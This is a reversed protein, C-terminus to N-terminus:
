QENQIGASVRGGIPIALRSYGGLARVARPAAGLAQITTKGGIAPSTLAAGAIGMIPSTIGTAGIIGGRLINMVGQGSGSGGGRGPALQQYADRVVATRLKDKFKFGKPALEDIEFFLEQTFTDKNYLNKVNRAVNEDKLKTKLRDRLTRIKSFKENVQAYSPISDSILKNIDNATEKLIGEGESSITRVTQQDFAKKSLANNIKNKIVHLKAVHMLDDSKLNEKFQNILKIDKKDLSTIGEFSKEDMMEDIKQTIPNTNLKVNSKKLLKKEVGVAKGAEKDIYNIAKQVRKGIIDFSRKAEFPGKFITKGALEKNLAYQVDDSPISTLIEQTESISKKTFPALKESIKKAGGGVLPLALAIAGAGVGANKATELSAELDEGKALEEVLRPAANFGIAQSAQSAYRGIVEGPKGFKAKGAKALKAGKGVPLAFAAFRATDELNKRVIEKVDEKIQEQKTLGREKQSAEKQKKRELRESFPISEGVGLVRAPASIVKSAFDLGKGLKSQEFEKAEAIKPDLENTKTPEAINVLDNYVPYKKLVKAVLESDEIDAYQPYKTKIKSAFEQISLM